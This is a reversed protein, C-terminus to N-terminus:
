GDDRTPEETMAWFASFGDTDDRFWYLLFDTASQADPFTHTKFCAMGSADNVLVMLQPSKDDPVVGAEPTEERELVATSGGGFPGWKPLRGELWSM